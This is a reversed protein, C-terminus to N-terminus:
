IAGEAHTSFRKTVLRIYNKLLGFSRGTFFAIYIFILQISQILGFKSLGRKASKRFSALTSPLVLSSVATAFAFYFAGNLAM